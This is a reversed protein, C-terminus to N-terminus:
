LKPKFPGEIKVFVCAPDHSVLYVLGDKIWHTRIGPACHLEGGVLGFEEALMQELKEKM